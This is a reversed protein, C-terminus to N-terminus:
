GIKRSAGGHLICLSETKTKYIFCYYEKKKLMYLTSVKRNFTMNINKGKAFDRYQEATIEYIGDKYYDFCDYEGSLLFNKLHPNENRYGIQNNAYIREVGDDHFM